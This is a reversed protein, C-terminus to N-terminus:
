GRRRGAGLTLAGPLRRGTRGWGSTVTDREENRRRHAAAATTARSPGSAATPAAAGAWAFFPPAQSPAPEGDDVERGPGDDCAAALVDLSSRVTVAAAQAGALEADAAAVDAVVHAQGVERHEVVGEGAGGFSSSMVPPRRVGTNALLTGWCRPRASDLPTVILRSSSTRSRPRVPVPSDIFIWDFSQAWPPMKWISGSRPSPVRVRMTWVSAVDAM